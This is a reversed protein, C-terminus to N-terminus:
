PASRTERTKRTFCFVRGGIRGGVEGAPPQELDPLLRKRLRFLGDQGEIVYGNETEVAAGFSKLWPLIRNLRANAEFVEPTLNDRLSRLLIM